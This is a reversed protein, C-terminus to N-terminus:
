EIFKIVIITTCHDDCGLKIVYGDWGGLENGWGQGIENLFQTKLTQSNTNTRCLLDNHGKKLNQMYTIAYSTQTESVESQM